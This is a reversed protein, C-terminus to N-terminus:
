GATFVSHLYIKWMRVENGRSQVPLSTSSWMMSNETLSNEIMNQLIFKGKDKLKIQILSIYPDITTILIVEQEPYFILIYISIYILTHVYFCMKLKYFTLILSRHLLLIFIIDLMAFASVFSCFFSEILM